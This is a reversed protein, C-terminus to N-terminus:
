KKPLSESFFSRMIELKNETNLVKVNSDSGLIDKNKVGEKINELVADKMEEKNTQYESKNRQFFAASKCGNNEWLEKLTGERLWKPGLFHTSDPHVDEAKILPAVSQNDGWLPYKTGVDATMISPDGTFWFLVNTWGQNVDFGPLDKAYVNSPIKKLCNVINTCRNRVFTELRSPEMLCWYLTCLSDTGAIVEDIHHKYEEYIKLFTDSGTSGSGCECKPVSLKPPSLHSNGHILHTGISGTSTQYSFYYKSVFSGLPSADYLWLLTMKTVKGETRGSFPHRPYLFLCSKGVEAMMKVYLQFAETPVWFEWDGKSAIILSSLLRCLQNKLPNIIGQQDYVAAARSVCLRLTPQTETKKFLEM